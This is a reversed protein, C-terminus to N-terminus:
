DSTEDRVLNLYQFVVATFTSHYTSGLQMVYHLYRGHGFGKLEVGLDELGTAGGGHGMAFGERLEESERGERRGAVEGVRAEDEAGERGGVRVEEVGEEAGVGAAGVWEM